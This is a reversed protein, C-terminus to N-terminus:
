VRKKRRRKFGGFRARRTPHHLKIVRMALREFGYTRRLARHLARPNTVRMRRNKALHPAPRRPIRQPKTMHFGKAGPMAGPLMLRETEAGAAAGVIGAAGAATLVPHQVVAREGAGVVKRLIGTTAATAMGVPSLKTGVGLLRAGGRVLKGFFAGVGPDGMYFDGRYFDGRYYSM